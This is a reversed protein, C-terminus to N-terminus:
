KKLDIDINNADKYYKAMIQILEKHEKGTVDKTQIMICYKGNEKKLKSFDSFDIVETKNKGSFKYESILQYNGKEDKNNHDYIKLIQIKNNDKSRISIKAQEFAKDATTAPDKFDSEAIVTRPGGNAIFYRNLNDKNELRSIVYRRVSWKQEKDSNDWVKVNISVSKGKECLANAGIKLQKKDSAITVEKNNTIDIFKKTTEDYKELQVKSIGNGDTFNFTLANENTLDVASRPGRNISLKYGSKISEKYSKAYMKITETHRKGNKIM